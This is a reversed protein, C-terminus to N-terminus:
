PRPPLPPQGAKIWYMIAAGASSTLVGWVGAMVVLVKRGGSAQQEYADIRKNTTADRDKNVERDKRIEELLVDIKQHLARRDDRAAVAAEKADQAHDVVVGELHKVDREVAVMRERLDAAESRTM